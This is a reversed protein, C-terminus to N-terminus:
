YREEALVVTRASGEIEDHVGGQNQILSLAPELSFDLRSLVFFSTFVSVVSPVEVCALLLPGRLTAFRIRVFIM